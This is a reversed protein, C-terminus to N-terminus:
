ENSYAYSRRNSSKGNEKGGKMKLYHLINIINVMKLSIICNLNINIKNENTNMFKIQNIYRGNIKRALLIPIIAHIFSYISSSLVPNFTSFYGDLKLYEIIFENSRITKIIKTNTQKNNKLKNIDLKGKELLNSIKYDDITFRLIRFKNLIYIGINLVFDIKIKSEQNSIHLKKIELKINSLSFVFNAFCMLIVIGLIIFVLIM